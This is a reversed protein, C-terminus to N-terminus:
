RAPNLWWPRMEQLAQKALLEPFEWLGHVRQMPAAGPVQSKQAFAAPVFLMSIAVVVVIGIALKRM